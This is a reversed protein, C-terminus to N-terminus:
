DQVRLGGGEVVGVAYLGGVGRVRERTGLWSLGKMSEVLGGGVDLKGGVSSFWVLKGAITTNMKKPLLLGGGNRRRLVLLVIAFGMLFLIALAM